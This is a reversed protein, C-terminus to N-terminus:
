ESKKLSDLGKLFFREVSWKNVEFVYPSESVAALLNSDNKPYLMLSIEKGRAKVRVTCISGTLSEKAVDSFTAARLPNLAALLSNVKEKDLSVGEMGRCIWRGEEKKKAGGKEGQAKSADKDEERAFSFTRGQYQISFESVDSQRVKLIEKERFDNVGKNMVQEFTGEALYVEPREDIMVFTHRNTPGMKGIKCRRLTENRKKIIVEVCKDPTLDYRAYFGKKSILDTLVIERFRKEIEDALTGDAPFGKDGVLWKGEKRFIRVTSDDHTIIIEDAKGEWGRLSPVDSSWKVRTLIIYLSLAAIVALSLAIKKNVTM